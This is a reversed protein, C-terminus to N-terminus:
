LFLALLTEVTEWTSTADQFDEAKWGIFLALPVKVKDNTKIQQSVFSAVHKCRAIVDELILKFRSKKM